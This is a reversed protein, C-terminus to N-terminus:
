IGWREKVAAIWDSDSWETHEDDWSQLGRSLNIERTVRHRKGAEFEAKDRMAESEILLNILRLRIHAEQTAQRVFNDIPTVTTSVARMLAVAGQHMERVFQIDEPTM